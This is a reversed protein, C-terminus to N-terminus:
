PEPPAPSLSSPSSLSSRSSSPQCRQSKSSPLHDTKPTYSLPPAFYPKYTPSSSTTIYSSTIHSSLVSIPYRHLHSTAVSQHSFSCVIFDCFVFSPDSICSILKGGKCRRLRRFLLRSSSLTELSSQLLAFDWSNRGLMALVIRLGRTSIKDGTEGGKEM